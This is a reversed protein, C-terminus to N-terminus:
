IEFNEVSIGISQLILTIVPGALILKAGTNFTIGLKGSELQLSGKGLWSGDRHISSHDNWNADEDLTIRAVFQPPPDAEVLTPSEQRLFFAFTVIAAIGLGAAAQALRRRLPFPVAPEASESTLSELGSPLQLSEPALLWQLDTHLDLYDHFFQRNHEGASLIANLQQTDEHDLAGDVAKGLLDHLEDSIPPTM